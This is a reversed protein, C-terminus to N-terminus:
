TIMCFFRKRKEFLVGRLKKLEVDVRPTLLCTILLEEGTKLKVGAYHYSEIALFHFNSNKYLSPSLYVTIKEIEDNRIHTEESGIRRILETDLVEYEEGKNKLWYDFHLYLAPIADILFLIGFIKMADQEFRLWVLIGLFLMGVILLSFLSSLHTFVRIKLLKGELIGAM